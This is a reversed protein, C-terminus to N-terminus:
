PNCHLSVEDEKKTSVPSEYFGNQEHQEEDACFLLSNNSAGIGDRQSFLWGNGVIFCTHVVAAEVCIRMTHGHSIVAIKRTVNQAFSM